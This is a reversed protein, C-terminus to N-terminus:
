GMTPAALPIEKMSSKLEMVYNSDMRSSSKRISSSADNNMIREMKEETEQVFEAFQKRHRANAEMEENLTAELSKNKKTFTNLSRNLQSIITEFNSNEESKIRSEFKALHKKIYEAIFSKNEDIDRKFKRELDLIQDAIEGKTENLRSELLSPNFPDHMKSNILSGQNNSGMQSGVREYYKPEQFPEDEYDAEIIQTSHRRKTSTNHSPTSPKLLDGPEFAQSRQSLHGILGHYGAAKWDNSTRAPARSTDAQGQQAKSLKEKFTLM